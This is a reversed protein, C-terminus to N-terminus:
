KDEEKQIRGQGAERGGQRERTWGVRPGLPSERDLTLTDEMSKRAARSGRLRTDDDQMQGGERGEGAEHVEMKKWATRAVGLQQCSSLSATSVGPWPVKCIVNWKGLASKKMEGRQGRM